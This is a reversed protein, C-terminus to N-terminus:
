SLFSTQNYTALLISKKLALMETVVHVCKLIKNNTPVKLFEPLLGIIIPRQTFIFNSDVNPPYIFDIINM